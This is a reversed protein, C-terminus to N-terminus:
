TMNIPLICIQFELHFPIGEYKCILSPCELSGPCRCLPTAVGHLSPCARTIDESTISVVYLLHAVLGTCVGISGMM